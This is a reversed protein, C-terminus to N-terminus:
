ANGDFSSIFQQVADSEHEDNIDVLRSRPGLEACRARATNWDVLEFIARYYKGVSPLFKWGPPYDVSHALNLSVM